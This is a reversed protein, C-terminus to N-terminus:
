PRRRGPSAGLVRLTREVVERPLRSGLMAQLVIIEYLRHNNPDAQLEELLPKLRKATREDAAEQELVKITNECSEITEQMYSEGLNGTKALLEIAKAANLLLPRVINWNKVRTQEIEAPEDGPDGAFNAVIDGSADRLVTLALRLARIARIEASRLLRKEDEVDM